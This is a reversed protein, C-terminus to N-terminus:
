RALRGLEDEGGIVFIKDGELVDTIFFHKEAVRKKFEAVSYVV